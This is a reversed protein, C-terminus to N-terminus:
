ILSWITQYVFTPTNKVFQLKLAPSRYIYNQLQFKTLVRWIVDILILSKM